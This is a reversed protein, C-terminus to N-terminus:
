KSRRSAARLITDDSVPDLKSEKLKQSVRRCLVTNPLTAQDPVGDPYMQQIARQTRELAPKAKTRSQKANAGWKSRGGHAQASCLVSTVDGAFAEIWDLEWSGHLVYQGRKVWWPIRPRSRDWDIEDPKITSPTEFAAAELVSQSTMHKTSHWRLQARYRVAGDSLAHCIEAQAQQVSVGTATMVRTVVPSLREWRSIYVM